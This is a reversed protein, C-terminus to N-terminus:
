AVDCLGDFHTLLVLSVDVHDNDYTSEGGTPRMQRDSKLSCQALWRRPTRIGDFIMKFCIPRVCFVSKAAVAVDVGALRGGHTFVSSETWTLSRGARPTEAIFM